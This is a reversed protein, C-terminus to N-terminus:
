RTARTTVDRTRKTRLPATVAGGASGYYIEAHAARFVGRAGPPSPACARARGPRAITAVNLARHRRPTSM